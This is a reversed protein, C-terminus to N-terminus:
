EIRCFPQERLNAFRRNPVVQHIVLLRSDLTEETFEVQRRGIGEAIPIRVFDGTALKLACHGGHCHRAPRVNQDEILGGGSEIHGRLDLNQSRDTFQDSLM